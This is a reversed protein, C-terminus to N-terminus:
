LKCETIFRVVGSGLGFGKFGYFLNVFGFVAFFLGFEEVSLKRALVFRWVYGLVATLVMMVLMITTSRVVKKTYNTM